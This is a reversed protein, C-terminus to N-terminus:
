NKFISLHLVCSENQQQYCQFFVISFFRYIFNTCSSVLAHFYIVQWTPDKLKEFNTSVKQQFDTQEYREKGFTGRAAAEETSLTLYIVRDPKPLGVDPQKCWNMDFGQYLYIYIVYKVSMM